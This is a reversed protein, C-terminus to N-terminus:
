VEGDISTDVLPATATIAIVATTTVGRTSGIAGARGPGTTASVTVHDSQSLQPQLSARVRMLIQGLINEGRWSSPDLVDPDDEAM